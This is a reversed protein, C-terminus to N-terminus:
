PRGSCLPKPSRLRPARRRSVAWRPPGANRSHPAPASETSRLSSSGRTASRACDASAPARQAAATRASCTASPNARWRLSLLAASACPLTSGRPQHAPRIPAVPKTRVLAQREGTAGRAVTIADRDVGGAM